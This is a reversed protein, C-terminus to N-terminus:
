IGATDLAARVGRALSEPAAHDPHSRFLALTRDVKEVSQYYRWLTPDRQARISRTSL